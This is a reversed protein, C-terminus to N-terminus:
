SAIIKTTVFILLEVRTREESKKKFLWGILPLDGFFPIKGENIVVRDTILGGIVITGGDPVLVTTQATRTDTAIAGTTGASATTASPQTVNPKVDLTIRGDANITPTVNLTIGTKQYEVKETTTTAAGATTETTVFPISTTIDINAPKGNLTTIKPDSLVKVKGQSAAASLTASLFYNNTVRGLTFAGFITKAPLSVGTGRLTPGAGAASPPSGPDTLSGLYTSGQEDLFKGSQKGVHEWQIGLHLGDTLQVEVLKTEILVQQPRRDLEALLREVSAIGDLTDTVILANTKSDPTVSGTRKEASRVANIATLIDAAKAYRLRLVRTQNVAVKREAALTAPTMVRLINEGVQSTVLGQMSLITTFAENFPVETLHLTLNGSVDSGYVINIDAKAAMLKLIDRTDMEDFELTIPDTPLSSLIDRKRGKTESDVPAAAAEAVPRRPARADPDPVLDRSMAMRRLSPDAQTSMKAPMGARERPRAPAPPNPADRMPPKATAVLVPEKRAAKRAAPTTNVLGIRLESGEWAAKYSVPEKLYLVLRSVPDPETRFQASRVKDLYLGKGKLRSAARFETGPLQFVLRAPAQLLTPQFEVPKSFRAVVEDDLVRISDLSAYDPAPEPAAAPAPEPAPAPAPGAAATQTKAGGGQLTIRLETGKWQASYGVAKALNLVIRSVPEPDKKYQATRVSKLVAGKAKGRTRSRHRTGPLEIVLRPPDQLFLPKFDVQESLRAIIEDSGVEVSQLSAFTEPTEPAAKSAPKSPTGAEPSPGAEGSSLRVSLSAGNWDAAYAVMKKLYLVIRTIPSPERQFQGSRIRALHKGRGSLYQSPAAHDTGQLEVVIRPPQSLTFTKFAVPRSLHATIEDSGVEVGELTANEAAWLAPAPGSGALTAALAVALGRTWLARIM